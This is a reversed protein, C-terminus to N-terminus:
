ELKLRSAYTDSLLHCYGTGMDTPPRQSRKSRRGENCNDDVTQTEEGGSEEENSQSLEADDVENEDVVEDKDSEDSTHLTEEERHGESLLEDEPHQFELETEDTLEHPNSNATKFSAIGKSEKLESESEEDVDKKM